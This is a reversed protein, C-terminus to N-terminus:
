KPRLGRLQAIRTLLAGRAGSALEEFEPPEEFRAVGGEDSSGAGLTGEREQEFFFKMRSVWFRALIGCAAEGYSALSFTASQQLKRRALFERGVATCAQARFSDFAVGVHRATWSGGRIIWNFHAEEKAPLSDAWELRAAALAEIVEEPDVDEEPRAERHGTEQHTPSAVGKASWSGAFTILDM